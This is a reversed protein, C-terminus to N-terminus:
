WYLVWIGGGLDSARVTGGCVLVIERAMGSYAPWQGSAKVMDVRYGLLDRNHRYHSAIRGCVFLKEEALYGVLSACFRDHFYSGHLRLAVHVV